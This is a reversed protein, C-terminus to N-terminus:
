QALRPFDVEVRFVAATAGDVQVDFEVDIRACQERKFVGYEAQGIVNIRRVFKM